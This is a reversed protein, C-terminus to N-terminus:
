SISINRERQRLTVREIFAPKIEVVLNCTHQATDRTVWMTLGVPLSHATIDDRTQRGTEAGRGWEHGVGDVMHCTRMIKFHSQAGFNDFYTYISM